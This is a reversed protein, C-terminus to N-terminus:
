SPGHGREELAARADQVLGTLLDALPVRVGGPPPSDAPTAIAGLVDVLGSLAGRLRAM